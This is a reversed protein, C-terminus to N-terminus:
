PVDELEVRTGWQPAREYAVAMELWAPSDDRVLGARVLGDQSHKLWNDKDGGRMGKGLVIVLTVRRRGAAAPVGALRAYTAFFRAAESTLRHGASWHRGRSRNLRPPLWGPIFFTYAAM